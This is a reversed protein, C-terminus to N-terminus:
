DGISHKKSVEFSNLIDRISDKQRDLHHREALIIAALSRAAIPLLDNVVVYDFNKYQMVESFSNSLRLELDALNETARATLRAKLVEFSPPLIFIAVAQPMKKRVEAAGQVDIELIVDKGSDTIEEIQQMSTGYMNGHVNAYELFDGANLKKEFEELSVFHYSRGDLEDHRRERTTYSVSYGIESVTELIERILTGKGGGSPSSIIILNGKM